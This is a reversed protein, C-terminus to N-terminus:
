HGAITQRIYEQEEETIGFMRLVEERKFMVASDVASPQGARIDAGGDVLAKVVDDSGKFVAGALPSQGRDNMVNVDAGKQILMEVTELHGHYAALMLLTDGKYNTLNVPIGATIYQSLEPTRGTRAFDFLKTALEIAAPPLTTRTSPGQAPAPDEAHPASPDRFQPLGM